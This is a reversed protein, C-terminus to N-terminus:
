HLLLGRWLKSRHNEAGSPLAIVDVEVSASPRLGTLAVPAHLYSTTDRKEKYTRDGRRGERACRRGTAGWGQYRQRGAPEKTEQEPLSPVDAFFPNARSFRSNAIYSNTAILLSTRTSKAPSLTHESRPNNRNSICTAPPQPLQSLAVKTGMGCPVL